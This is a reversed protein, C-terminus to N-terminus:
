FYHGSIRGVVGCSTKQYGASENPSGSQIQHTQCNNDFLGDAVEFKRLNWLEDIFKVRILMANTEPNGM